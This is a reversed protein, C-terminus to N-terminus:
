QTGGVITRLDAVQVYPFGSGAGEALARVREVQRVAYKASDQWQDRERELEDAREALRAIDSADGTYDTLLDGIDDSLTRGGVEGAGAQAGTAVGSTGPGAAPTAPAAPHASEVTLPGRAALAASNMFWAGGSHAWPHPHDTREHTWREADADILVVGVAAAELWAADDGDEGSDRVVDGPKFPWAEGRFAAWEGDTMEVGGDPDPQTTPAGKTKADIFEHADERSVLLLYRDDALIVWTPATGHGCCSAVTRIGGDNLAKVLPVLCPDCWVGDRGHREPTGPDLVVMAAERGGLDNTHDCM